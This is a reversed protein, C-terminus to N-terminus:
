SVYRQHVPQCYDAFVDFWFIIHLITNRGHRLVDGCRRICVGIQTHTVQVCNILALRFQAERGEYQLRNFQLYSNCYLTEHKDELRHSLLHTFGANADCLKQLYKRTPM